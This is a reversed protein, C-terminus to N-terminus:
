FNNQWRGGFKKVVRGGLVNKGGVGLKKFGLEMFFIKGDLGLFKKAVKGEFLKKRM